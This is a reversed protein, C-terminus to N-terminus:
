IFKKERAIQQAVALDKEPDGSGTTLCRDYAEGEHKELSEISAILKPKGMGKYNRM